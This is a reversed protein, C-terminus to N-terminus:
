SNGLMMLVCFTTFTMKFFVVKYVRLFKTWPSHKISVHWVYSWLLFPVPANTSTDVNHFVQLGIRVNINCRSSCTFLVSTLQYFLCVRSKHNRQWSVSSLKVMIKKSFYGYKRYLKPNRSRFEKKFLTFVDTVIPVSRNWYDDLTCTTIYIYIYIYIYLTFNAVM